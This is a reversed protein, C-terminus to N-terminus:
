PISPSIIPFAHVVLTCQPISLESYNSYVDLYTSTQAHTNLGRCIHQQTTYLSQSSGRGEKRGRVEEAGCEEWGQGKYPVQGEREDAKIEGVVYHGQFTLGKSRPWRYCACPAHAHASTTTLTHSKAQTCYIKTDSPLWATNQQSTNYDKYTAIYAM